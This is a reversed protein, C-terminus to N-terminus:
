LYLTNIILCEANKPRKEALFRVFFSLCICNTPLFYSAKKCKKETIPRKKKRRFSDRWRQYNKLLGDEQISSIDYKKLFTFVTEKFEIGHLHKNEDMLEHLEAWMLARLRKELIATGRVSIYNFQEPSKGGAFNAERRDPLMFELNGRDAPCNVPRKEMLDYVTVYIDSSSPFRVTGVTEDYYKGRVYEALYSEIQIRTTIMAIVNRKLPLSIGKDATPRGNVPFHLCEVAM